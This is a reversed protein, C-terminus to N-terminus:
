AEGGFGNEIFSAVAAAACEADCGSATVVLETGCVAGLVLLALISGCDAPADGPRGVTLRSKFTGAIRVLEAAPRGHLGQKGNVTVRKEVVDAM